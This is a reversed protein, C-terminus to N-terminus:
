TAACPEFYVQGHEALPDKQGSLAIPRRRLEVLIDELDARSDGSWPWANPHLEIVIGGQWHMPSLLACAGRLAAIEWGEIDMVIWDPKLQHSESFRDLTTVPVRIAETKPLLPNARMPRAMGDVGSVHLTLDGVAEGVAVGAIEVQSDLRNLQLNRKLLRVAYPNPEFAVVRGTPQSWRALQVALVGVNAGVNYIAAGPAIRRCLFRAAAGEYETAFQHRCRSDVHYEVGNVVRRVGTRATALRLALERV